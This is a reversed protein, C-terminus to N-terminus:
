RSWKRLQQIFASMDKPLGAHVTIKKGSFDNFSVSLSHLALRSLRPREEDASKSLKFKRKFSSLYIPSGDGYLEDCLIPYGLQKMHVRIQHMRGTRIQFEILSFSGFEEVLSYDTESQKGNSHVIMLNRKSSHNRIPLDIIGKKVSLIGKVIGVYIKQVRRNEFEQSLFKHSSENKAFIIAGSTEKDLRHITFITGYKEKLIEKISEDKGESGPISLLGPPKNVAIFDDNEFIVELSHKL